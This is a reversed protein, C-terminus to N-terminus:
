LIVTLGVLSLIVAVTVGLLEKKLEPTTTTSMIKIKDLVYMSDHQEEIEIYPM